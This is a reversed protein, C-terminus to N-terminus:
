KFINDLLLEIKDLWKKSGNENKNVEKLLNDIEKVKEPNIKDKNYKFITKLLDLKSLYYNVVKTNYETDKLHSNELLKLNLKMKDLDTKIAIMERTNSTDIISKNITFSEIQLDTYIDKKIKINSVIQLSVLIAITLIIGLEPNDFSLFSIIIFIIFKVVPKDLINVAFDSLNNINSAYLSLLIVTGILITNNKKSDKEM